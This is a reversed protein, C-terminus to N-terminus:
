LARKLQEVVRWKNKEDMNKLVDVMADMDIDESCIYDKSRSSVRYRTSARGNTQREKEQLQSCLDYGEELFDVIAIFHAEIYEPTLASIKDDIWIVFKGEDLSRSIEPHKM